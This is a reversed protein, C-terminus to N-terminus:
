PHATRYPHHCPNRSDSARRGSVGQAVPSPRFERGARPPTRPRKRRTWVTSNVNASSSRTCSRIWSPLPVAVDQGSAGIRGAIADLDLQVGVRRLAHCLQPLPEPPRHVDHPSGVWGEVASVGRGCGGLTVALVIGTPVVVALFNPYSCSAQRTKGGPACESFDVGLAFSVILSVVATALTPLLIRLMAGLDTGPTSRCPLPPRSSLGARDASPLEARSGV